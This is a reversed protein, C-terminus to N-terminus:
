DHMKERIDNPIKTLRGADVQNMLDKLEDLDMKPSYWFIFFPVRYRKIGDLVKKLDTKNLFIEGTRVKIENPNERLDVVFEQDGRFVKVREAHKHIRKGPQLLNLKVDVGFEHVRNPVNAMELLIGFDDFSDTLDKKIM